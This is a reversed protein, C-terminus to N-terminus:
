AVVAILDLDLVSYYDSCSDINVCVQGNKSDVKLDIYGTKQLSRVLVQVGKEPTIAESESTHKVSKKNIYQPKSSKILNTIDQRSVPETVKECFAQVKGENDKAHRHLSVLSKVSTCLKQDYLSTLYEPMSAFSKYMSVYDKPKNLQRAIDVSSYGQDLRSQIWQGIEMPTLDNRQINEIMQLVPDVSEILIGPIETLGDILQAARFRREGFVIMFKGHENEERLGIPQLVGYTEISESLAELSEDDFTKRPQNPDTIIDELKINLVKDKKPAPNLMSSLSRLEDTFM